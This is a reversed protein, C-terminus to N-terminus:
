LAFRASSKRRLGVVGLLGFGALTYVWTSLEPIATTADMSVGQIFVAAGPALTLTLEEALGYPTNVLDAGIGNFSFSQPGSLLGSDFNGINTGTVTLGQGNLTNTGDVFYAGVLDAGGLTVGIAGTLNFADSPGAFGNAGAIIRLTQTTSDTNDININAETLQDPGTGRLVSSVSVTIGSLNSSLVSAQGIGTATEIGGPNATNWISIASDAALAPTVGIAALLTTALLLKRM